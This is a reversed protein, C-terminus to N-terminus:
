DTCPATKQSKLAGADGREECRCDPLLLGTGFVTAEVCDCKWREIFVEKDFVCQAGLQAEGQCTYCAPFHWKFDPCWPGFAGLEFGFIQIGVGCTEGTGSEDTSPPIYTAQQDPCFSEQAGTVDTTVFLAFCLAAALLRNMPIIRM